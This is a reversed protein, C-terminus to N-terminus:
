TANKKFCLEWTLFLAAITIVSDAINFVPWFRLDLFDVVFGFRLRDILNGICAGLILSLSFKFITSNTKNKLNYLILAIAFFSVLVFLLLQNQFLGFAAGRNHVLTLNLFNKILPVPTNLQLFKLALFKTVQDLLIVSTVIIFIM